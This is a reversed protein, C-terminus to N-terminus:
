GGQLYKLQEVSFPRPKRGILQMLEDPAATNGEALMRLQDRTVPLGYERGERIATPAFPHARDGRLFRCMALIVRKL